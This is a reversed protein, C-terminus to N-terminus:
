FSALPRNPCTELCISVGCFCHEKTGKKIQGPIGFKTATSGEAQGWQLLNNLKRPDGTFLRVQKMWFTVTWLDNDFVHVLNAHGRINLERSDLWGAQVRLYLSTAGGGMEKFLCLRRRGNPQTDFGITGNQPLRVMWQLVQKLPQIPLNVSVYGPNRGMALNQFADARGGAARREGSAAIFRSGLRQRAADPDLAPLGHLYSLQRLAQSAPAGSNQETRKKSPPYKSFNNKKNTQPPPPPM